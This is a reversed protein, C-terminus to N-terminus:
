SLQFLTSLSGIKSNILRIDVSVQKQRDKFEELMLELMLKRRDLLFAKIWLTVICKGTGLLLIHMPDIALMTPPDFYPLELM